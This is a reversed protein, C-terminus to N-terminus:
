GPEVYLLKMSTGLSTLVVLGTFDQQFLSRGQQKLEAATAKGIFSLVPRLCGFVGDLFGRQSAANYFRGASSAPTTPPADLLAPSSSLHGLPTGSSSTANTLSSPATRCSSNTTLLVQVCGDNDLRLVSCNFDCRSNTCCQRCCKSPPETTYHNAHRVRSRSTGPEVGPRQM